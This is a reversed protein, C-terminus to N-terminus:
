KMSISSLFVMISKRDYNLRELHFSPWTGYILHFLLWKKKYGWIYILPKIKVRKNWQSERLLVSHSPPFVCFMFMKLRAFSSFFRFCLYHINFKLKIGRSEPDHFAKIVKWKCCNSPLWLYQHNAINRLHQIDSIWAVEQSKINM